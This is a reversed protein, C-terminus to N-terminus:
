EDRKVSPSEKIIQKRRKVLPSKKHNTKENKSYSSLAEELLKNGVQVIIAWADILDQTRQRGAQYAQPTALKAAEDSDNVSAM